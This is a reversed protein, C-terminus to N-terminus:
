SYWRRLVTRFRLGRFEEPDLPRYNNNLVVGSCMVMIGAEDAQAIFLRLADTWTPIRRRKEIDFGLAHRMIAAISEVSSQLNMSGVFALASIRESRAFDRYWKQRQQCVYIM